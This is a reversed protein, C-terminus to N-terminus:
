ERVEIYVPVIKIPKEGPYTPNNDMVARRTRCSLHLHIKRRLVPVWGVRKYKKVSEQKRTMEAEVGSSEQPVRALQGLTGAQIDRESNRWNKAVSEADLQREGGDGRDPAPSPTQDHSEDMWPFSPSDEIARHHGSSYNSPPLFKYGRDSSCRPSRSHGLACNGTSGKLNIFLRQM